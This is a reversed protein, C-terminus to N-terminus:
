AAALGSRRGDKVHPWRRHTDHPMKVAIPCGVIDAQCPHKGPRICLTIQVPRGKRIYRPVDAEAWRTTHKSGTLAHQYRDSDWEIGACRTEEKEPSRDIRM